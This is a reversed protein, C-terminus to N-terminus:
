DMHLVIRNEGGNVTIGQAFVLVKDNGGEAIIRGDKLTVWGDHGPLVRDATRRIRELSAASKEMDMTIQVEGTSLEGRNKAADGALIWKSGDDQHLVYCCSGPTHGPALMATVGPVIEDGDEVLMLNKEMFPFAAFDVWRDRHEEDHAYEWEKRSVVFRANPYRYINPTHDYHIHTILVHDVDELKVGYPELFKEYDQRLCSPGTDLVMTHVGDRILGWTAWGISGMELKGSFGGFLIDVNFKLM